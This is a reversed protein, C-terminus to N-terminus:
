APACCAKRRRIKLVIGSVIALLGAIMFLGFLLSLVGLCILLTSGVPGALWGLSGGAALRLMFAFVLIVVAVLGLQGLRNLTDKSTALASIEVEGRPVTFDYVVGREPLEVELSALGSIAQGDGDTLLKVNGPNARLSVADILENFVLVDDMSSLRDVVEKQRRMDVNSKNLKHQYRQVEDKEGRGQRERLGAQWEDTQAVKAM